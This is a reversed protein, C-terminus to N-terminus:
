KGGNQKDADRSKFWFVILGTAFGFYAVADIKGIFFGWTVGLVLVAVEIPRFWRM